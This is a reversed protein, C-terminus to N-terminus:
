PIRLFCGDRPIRNSYTRRYFSRFSHTCSDQTSKRTGGPAERPAMQPQLRTLLSQGTSLDYSFRVKRSLLFISCCIHPRNSNSHHKLSELRYQVSERLIDHWLWGLFRDSYGIPLRIPLSHWCFQRPTKSPCMRRCVSQDRYLRM